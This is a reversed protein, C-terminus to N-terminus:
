DTYDQALLRQPQEPLGQPKRNTQRDRCWALLAERVDPKERAALQQVDLVATAGTQGVFTLFVGDERVDLSVNDIQAM